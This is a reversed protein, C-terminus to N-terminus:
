FWYEINGNTECGPKVAAHHELKDSGTAPLIASKSNTIRTLAEDAWFGDCDACYWYEIRGNYHCAPEIAEFHIVNESGLAPLIVSKSNTVRTLAEDAWFGDCDACYWYEIHGNYHCSPEIAEFHIIEPHVVEFSATYNIVGAPTSSTDEPNYTNLKFELIDGSKVDIM